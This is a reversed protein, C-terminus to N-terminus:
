SIASYVIDPCGFKSGVLVHTILDVGNETYEITDTFIETDTLVGDTYTLLKYILGACNGPPITIVVDGQDPLTPTFEYEYLFSDCCDIDTIEECCSNTLAITENVILKVSANCKDEGIWETQIEIDLTEQYTKFEKKWIDNFIYITDCMPLKNLEDVLPEYLAQSSQMLWQKQIKLFTQTKNKNGDEDFEDERIYEPESLEADFIFVDAYGMTLFPISNKNCSNRAVILNYCEVKEVEYIEVSDIYYTAGGTNSLTYTVGSPIYYVNEGTSMTHSFTGYSFISDTNALTVTIVLKVLSEGGATQSMSDGSDLQADGSNWTAGSVTWGYLDTTFQGNVAIDDTLTEIYKDVTSFVESYYTEDGMVIEYYYLSCPLVPDLNLTQFNCAIYDVDGANKISILENSLTEIVDDNIDKIKFTTVTNSSAVRTFMFPITYNSLGIFTNDCTPCGPRKQHVQLSYITDGTFNKYITLGQNM